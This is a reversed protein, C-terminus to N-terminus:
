STSMVQITEWDHVLDYAPQGNPMHFPKVCDSSGPLVPLCTRPPIGDAGEYTGFYDDFSRNEQIIWIVHNITKIGSPPAQALVVDSLFSRLLLLILFSFLRKTDRNM